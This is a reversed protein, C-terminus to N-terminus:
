VHFNNTSSEDKLLFYMVLWEVLNKFIYISYHHM